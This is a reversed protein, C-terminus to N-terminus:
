QYRKLIDEQLFFGYDKARGVKTMKKSKLDFLYWATLFSFPMDKVDVLLVNDSWPDLDVVAFPSPSPKPRPINIQEELVFMSDAKKLIQCIIEHEEYDGLGKFNRVNRAFLYIRNDRFFINEVRINTSYLVKTPEDISSIETFYKLPGTQVTENNIVKVGSTYGIFYFKGSPDVGFYGSPVIDRFYGNKFRLGKKVDDVWAVFEGQDNLYGGGSPPLIKKIEGGASVSLIINRKDARYYDHLYLITGTSNRTVEDLSADSYGAKKVYNLLDDHKYVFLHPVDTYYHGM